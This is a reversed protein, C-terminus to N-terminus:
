KLKEWLEVRQKPARSTFTIKGKKMGFDEM